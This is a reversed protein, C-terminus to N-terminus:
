RSRGARGRWVGLAVLAVGVAVVAAVALLQDSQTSSAAATRTPAAETSNVVVTVTRQATYLRGLRDSYTAAVTVSYTGPREAVLTFLADRSTQPAVAGLPSPARVVKVGSANLRVDRAEVGGSNYLRVALYFPDGAGPREPTVSADILLVPRQLAVLYLTGVYEGSVGSALVYSAKYGIAVNGVVDAPVELTLDVVGGAGLYVTRQPFVVGSVPYLTVAVESVNVRPRVYIRVTERGGSPVEAPDVWVEVPARQSAVLNITTRGVGAVSVDLTVVPSTPIVNLVVEVADVGFFPVPHQGLVVGGSVAIVGEVFGAGRIKVVVKNIDNMVLVTPEASVGLSPQTQYVPLQLEVRDVAGTDLQVTVPIVVYPGGACVMPWIYAEGRELTASTHMAYVTGNVPMPYMVRLGISSCGSPVWQRHEVVVIPTPRPKVSLPVQRAVVVERGLADRARITVTLSASFDLPAVELPATFNGLDGRFTVPGYLRAGVASVEVTGNYRFSDWVRLLVRGKVGITLGGVAAVQPSPYPPVYVEAYEVKEVGGSLAGSKYVYRSRFVATCGESVGLRDARVKLIAEYVGPGASPSRVPEAYLGCRSLSVSVDVHQDALFFSLKLLGFDGPFKPVDVWQAGLFLFDTVPQFVAAQASLLVASFLLLILHRPM